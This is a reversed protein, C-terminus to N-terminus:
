LIVPFTTSTGFKELLGWSGLDEGANKFRSEVGLYGLECYEKGTYSGQGGGWGVGHVCHELLDVRLWYVLKMTSRCRQTGGSRPGSDQVRPCM